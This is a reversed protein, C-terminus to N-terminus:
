EIETNRWQERLIEVAKDAVQDATRRIKRIEQLVDNATAPMELGLAAAFRLIELEAVGACLKLNNIEQDRDELARILVAIPFSASAYPMLVAAADFIEITLNGNSRIRGAKLDAILQTTSLPINEPQDIQDM